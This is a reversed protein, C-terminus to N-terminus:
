KLLRARERDVLDLANLGEGLSLHFAISLMFARERTKFTSHM